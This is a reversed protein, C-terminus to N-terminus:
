SLNEPPNFQAHWRVLGAEKELFKNIGDLNRIDAKIQDANDLDERPQLDFADGSLHRSLHALEDAPYTNIIRELGATVADVTAAEPHEDVWTQLEDRVDSVVYTKAIFKRNKVVNSAMAHAQGHKDRLGSTVVLQPYKELITQLGALAYGRLGWKNGDNNPVEGGTADTEDISNDDSQQDDQRKRWWLWAAVAAGTLIVVAAIATGTKTKTTM